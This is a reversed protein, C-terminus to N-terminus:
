FQIINKINETTIQKNIPLKRIKYDNKEIVISPFFQINYKKLLELNDTIEINLNKYLQKLEYTIKEHTHKKYYICAPCDKKIFIYMKIPQTIQTFKTKKSFTLFYIIVLFLFIIYHNM